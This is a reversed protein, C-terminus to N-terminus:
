PPPEPVIRDLEVTAVYPSFGDARQRAYLRAIGATDAPDAYDLSFLRLAPNAAKAARLVALQAAHEAPPVPAPRKAAFDWGSLLSEALSMDIDGAVAPLIEYGRNLMILITPHRARIAKVLDAAARTMGAFRRPDTRELHPPNDLTDLFVGHFGKAIIRPVLEHVVRDRWRRSRVDVYFSGPWNPNEDHLIGEARVDAYHARHREVEGVSLYGLLVTGQAALRRLPPHADADLVAIRYPRFDEPAARDSYYVVWEGAAATTPVSGVILVALLTLASLIRRM